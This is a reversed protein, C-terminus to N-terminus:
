PRIALYAQVIALSAVHMSQSFSGAVAMSFLDDFSARGCEIDEAVDLQLAGAKKLSEALFVHVRNTQRAPNAWLSTILTMSKATYGTEERLERRAAVGIDEGTEVVGAPLEICIANAAPRYQRVTVVCGDDAVAVIHVWEKDEIVYYPEIQAGSPLCYTKAKLTLWQDSLVVHESIQKWRKM